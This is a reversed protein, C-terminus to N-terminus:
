RNSIGLTTRSILQKSNNNNNRIPRRRHPHSHRSHISRNGAPIATPAILSAPRKPVPLTLGTPCFWTSAAEQMVSSPAISPILFLRFSGAMMHLPYKCTRTRGNYLGSEISKDRGSSGERVYPETRSMDFVLPTNNHAPDLNSANGAPAWSGSSTLTVHSGSWSPNM